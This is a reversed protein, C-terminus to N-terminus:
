EYTKTYLEVKLLNLINFGPLQLPVQARPRWLACAGTRRGRPVWRVAARGRRGPGGAAQGGHGLSM